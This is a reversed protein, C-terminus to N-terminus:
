GSLGRTGCAVWAQLSIPRIRGVVYRAVTKDKNESQHKTSRHAWRGVSDQVGGGRVLWGDEQRTRGHGAGVGGRCSLVLERLRFLVARRAVPHRLRSDPGARAERLQAADALPLHHLPGDEHPVVVRPLQGERRDPEAVVPVSFRLLHTPGAKAEARATKTETSSKKKAAHRCGITNLAPGLWRRGMDGVQSPRQANRKVRHRWWRM